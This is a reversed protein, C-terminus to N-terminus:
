LGTWKRIIQGAIRVPKMLWYCEVLFPNTVIRAILTGLPGFKPKLQKAIYNCKIQLELRHGQKFAKKREKASLEKTEFCPQAVFQSARNLYESPTALFRGYKKVWEYLETNPFPIINNFFVGFIPYKKVFRFSDHIDDWTEMPSGILFSLEVVMGLECAIRVAEDIQEM